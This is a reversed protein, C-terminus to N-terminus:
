AKRGFGTQRRPMAWDRWLRALAIPSQCIGHRRSTTPCSPRSWFVLLLHLSASVVLCLFIKESVLVRAEAMLAEKWATLEDAHEARAVHAKLELSALRLVADAPYVAWDQLVSGLFSVFRGAASCQFFGAKSGHFNQWAMGAPIAMRAQIRLRPLSLLSVHM